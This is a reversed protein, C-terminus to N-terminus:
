PIIKLIFGAFLDLFSFVAYVCWYTLWQKDDEDEPSEIAKISWYTPLVIGVLCTVYSSFFGFIVFVLAAGLAILIYKPDYPTKKELKTFQANMAKGFKEKDLFEM